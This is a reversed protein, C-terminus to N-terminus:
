AKARRRAAVALGVGVLGVAVGVAGIGTAVGASSKADDAAETAAAIRPDLREVRDGLDARSPDKVPFEVDAPAQPSDFTTDSSTFSQDVQEGNVTGVFRFTYTGARTPILPAQYEGPSNFVSALPLPGVKDPGFSVEVKLGDGVDTVPTPEPASGDRLTVQVANLYGAYAPEVAWGVVFQVSGVPRREHASASPALPGVLLAVGLLAVGSAAAALRQFAPKM